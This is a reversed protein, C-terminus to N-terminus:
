KQEDDEIAATLLQPEEASFPIVLEESGEEFFPAEHDGVHWEAMIEAARQPSGKGSYLTDFGFAPEAWLWKKLETPGKL